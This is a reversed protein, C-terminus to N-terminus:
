LRIVTIGCIKVSLATKNLTLYPSSKFSLRHKLVNKPIKLVYTIYKPFLFPSFEFYMSIVSM